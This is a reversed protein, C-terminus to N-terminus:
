RRYEQSGILIPEFASVTPLLGPRAAPAIGDGEIGKFTLYANLAYGTVEAEATTNTPQTTLPTTTETM